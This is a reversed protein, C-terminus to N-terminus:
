VAWLTTLLCDLKEDQVVIVNFGVVDFVFEFYKLQFFYYLSIYLGFTFGLTSILAKNCIVISVSSVVSLGLAGITGLQFRQSEGMEVREIKIIGKGGFRKKDSILWIM